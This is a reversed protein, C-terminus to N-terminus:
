IIEHVFGYAVAQQANFDREKKMDRLVTKLKQGTKEATLTALQIKLDKLTTLIEKALKEDLDSDLPPLAPLHIGIRSHSTIKREDCTLLVITASSAAVGEVLAELKLGQVKLRELRDAIAWANKISGGPSDIIIKLRDLKMGELYLQDLVSLFENKNEETLEGNLYVTAGMEEERSEEKEGEAM